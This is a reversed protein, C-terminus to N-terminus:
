VRTDINSPLWTSCLAGGPEETPETTTSATKKDTRDYTHATLPAKTKSLRALGFDLLKVGHGTVLVNDPKLDCHIIGKKHAAELAGAIQIGFEVAEEVSLPGSLPRGHVLEMVLYNPGAYHLTCIHPHNLTALIRAEEMFRDTFREESVKIAVLRDLVTDTASFVQGMGGAGLSEGIRFHDLMSGPKLSM